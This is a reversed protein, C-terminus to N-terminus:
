FNKFFSDFLTIFHDLFLLILKSSSGYIILDNERLSFAAEWFSLYMNISTYCFKSFYTILLKKLM